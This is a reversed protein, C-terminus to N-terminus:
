DSLKFVKSILLYAGITLLCCMLALFFYTARCVGQCSAVFAHTSSYDVGNYESRGLFDQRPVAASTGSRTRYVAHINFMMPYSVTENSMPPDSFSIFVGIFMPHSPNQFQFQATYYSYQGVPTAGFAVSSATLISTPANSETADREWFAIDVIPLRRRIREGVYINVDFSQASEASNFDIANLKYLKWRDLALDTDRTGFTLSDTQMPYSTLTPRAILLPAAIPSDCDDGSYTPSSCVCQGLGDCTGRGACLVGKVSTPCALECNLGKFGSDCSCRSASSGALVVCDGRHSCDMTRQYTAGSLTPRCITPALHLLPKWNSTTLNSVLRFCWYRSGGDEAHISSWLAHGVGGDADVVSDTASFRAKESQCGDFSGAFSIEVRGVETPFSDFRLQLCLPQKTVYALPVYLLSNFDSTTETLAINDDCTRLTVKKLGGINVTAFPYYYQGSVSSDRVGVCITVKQPATFTVNILSPTTPVNEVWSVATGSASDLAEVCGFQRGLKSVANSPADLIQLVFPDGVFPIAGDNINVGAGDFPVLTQQPLQITRQSVTATSPVEIWQHDTGRQYWLSVVRTGFAYPSIKCIFSTPHLTARIYSWCAFSNEDKLPGDSLVAMLSNSNLNLGTVSLVVDGAKGGVATIVTTETVLSVNSYIPSNGTYTLVLEPSKVQQEVYTGTQPDIIASTNYVVVVKFSSPPTLPDMDCLIQTAQLFVVKCERYIYDRNVRQAYRVAYPRGELTLLDTGYLTMRLSDTRVSPLHSDGFGLIKAGRTVILRPTATPNGFVFSSITVDHPTDYSLQAPLNTVSCQIVTDAISVPQCPVRDISISAAARSAFDGSLTGNPPATAAPDFGTGYIFLKLVGSIDLESITLNMAYSGAGPASGSSSGIVDLSYSSSSGSGSSSFSNAASSSGSAPAPPFVSIGNVLAVDAFRIFLPTLLAKTPAAKTSYKLFLNVGTMTVITLRCDLFGFTLQGALCRVGTLDAYEASGLVLEKLTDVWSAPARIFITEGMRTAGNPFTISPYYPCGTCPSIALGLPRMDEPAEPSYTVSEVVVATAPVVPPLTSSAPTGSSPALSIGPSSTSPNATPAQVGKSLCVVSLVSAPPAMLQDPTLQMMFTM